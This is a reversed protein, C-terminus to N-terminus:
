HSAPVSGARHVTLPKGGANWPEWVGQHALGKAEPIETMRRSGWHQSLKILLLLRFLQFSAQLAAPNVNLEPTQHWPFADMGKAASFAGLVLEWALPCSQLPVSSGQLKLILHGPMHGSLGIVQFLSVTKVFSLSAALASHSFGTALFMERHQEGGRTQHM